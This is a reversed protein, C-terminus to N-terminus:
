VMNACTLEIECQKQNGIDIFEIEPLLYHYIEYKKETRLQEIVQILKSQITETIYMLNRRRFSKEKEYQSYSDWDDWNIEPIIFLQSQENLIEFLVKVEASNSEYKQIQCYIQEPQAYSWNRDLDPKRRSYYSTHQNMNHIVIKELILSKLPVVNDNQFQQKLNFVLQNTRDAYKKQLINKISDSINVDYKLAKKIESNVYEYRGKNQNYYSDNIISRDVNTVQFILFSTLSFILLSYIAWNHIKFILRISLWHAIFIYIPICFLLLSFDRIFNLQNDFGQQGYVIIPIVSGLRGVIMIAVFVIFWSNAVAFRQYYLKKIYSNRGNLWYVITLGLGISTSFTATFLDYIRFDREPLIYLDNMSTVMRLAERSYNFFLSFIFSSAIGVVIGTWFRRGGLKNISIEPKLFGKKLM